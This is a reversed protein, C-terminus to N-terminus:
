TSKKEIEGADMEYITDCLDNIDSEIHSALLILKGENKKELLFKKVEIVSQKDLGSFPEDLIMIDPDEMVVQIIGLKQKMGLSFKGVKKDRMEYLDFIKLYKFIDERDIKKQISALLNLNEFATANDIFNPREILARIETPFSHKKTINKSNIIVEGTDPTILGCIMRFLMSKGSGNRGIIGVIQGKELVLNINNLVTNNDITKSVQKLEIM